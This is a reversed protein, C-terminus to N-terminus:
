DIHLAAFNIRASSEVVISVAKDADASKDVYVHCVGDAHGLVPVRTSNQVHKVLGNSGRPVVLDVLPTPAEDCAKLLQAVQARGELLCVAGELDANGFETIADKITAHLVANSLRAESGGKMVVACGARLALAAIQPLAEPRAEFIVLVVGLSASRKELILGPSLERKELLQGVPDKANALAEVGKAVTELKAASLGLRQRLEQAVDGSDAVDAANAALIAPAAARLKSAIAQLIKTRDDAELAQLARAARRASQGVAELPNGEDLSPKRAIDNSFYTGVDDGALVRRLVDPESGSALVVSKIGVELAGLAANVKAEMGGRGGKSIGGFKWDKLSAPHVERVLRAGAESPPRDYLGEVDTLMILCDAGVLKAVLAALGDNDSFCGDPVESYGANGSVADNENIIPVMGVDMIAQISHQLNKRCAEDVFDRRTVLFQSPEIEQTAFLTEYLSMLALQGAAAAAASYGAGETVEQSKMHDRLTRHLAAQKRLVSRGCGVAGSSVLVVKTGQRMLQSVAEVIAGLRPLSPTGDDHSVTSTGAKVVVFKSAKLHTRM